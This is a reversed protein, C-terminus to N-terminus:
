KNKNWDKKSDDDPVPEMRGGGGRGEKKKNQRREPTAPLPKAWLWTADENIRTGTKKAILTQFQSWGGGRKKGNKRRETHCTSAKGIGVTADEKNIRTGTGSPSRM